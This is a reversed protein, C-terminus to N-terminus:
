VGSGKLDKGGDAPREGQGKGLALTSDRERRGQFVGLGLVPLNFGSKLVPSHKPQWVM